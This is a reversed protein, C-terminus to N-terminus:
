LPPRKVGFPQRYHGMEEDSLQRQPRRLQNGARLHERQRTRNPTPNPAPGAATSPSTPAPSTRRAPPRWSDSSRPSRKRSAPGVWCPPRVSLISCKGNPPTPTSPDQHSPTSASAQPDTNPPGPAPSHPWHPRPPAM